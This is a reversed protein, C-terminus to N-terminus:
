TPFINRTPTGSHFRDSKCCDLLGHGSVWRDTLPPGHVEEDWDDDDVAGLVRKPDVFYRGLGLKVPGTVPRSQPPDEPIAPIFPVPLPRQANKLQMVNETRRELTLWLDGVTRVHAIHSLRMALKAIRLCPAHLVIFYLKPDLSNCYWNPRQPHITEFPPSNLRLVVQRFAGREDTDEYVPDCGISDDSIASFPNPREFYSLSSLVVNDQKWLEPYWRPPSQIVNSMHERTFM